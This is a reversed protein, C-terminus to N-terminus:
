KNTMKTLINIIREVDLISSLIQILKSRILTNESLSEVSDLRIQLQHIDLLPQGLWRKLMRAGMSTRTSDLVSLLSYKQNNDRGGHFVELNNSTQKDLIM